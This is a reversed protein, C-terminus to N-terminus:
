PTDKLVEQVDRLLREMAPPAEAHLLWATSPLNYTKPSLQQEWRGVLASQYKALFTSFPAQQTFSGAVQQPAMTNSVLAALQKIDAHGQKVLGLFATRVRVNSSGNGHQRWMVNLARLVEVHPIPMSANIREQKVEFPPSVEVTQLLATVLDTGDAALTDFNLVKVKGPFNKHYLDLVVSPNFLQSGYPRAMHPFFYESWTAEAGHKISEQWSSVLLDDSRRMVYVVTTDVSKLMKALSAVQKANLRDFNESSIINLSFEGFKQLANELIPSHGSSQFEEVIKHQGYAINIGDPVYNIGSASLQESHAFLRKQIFTTGTKHPGIHLLLKPTTMTQIPFARTM